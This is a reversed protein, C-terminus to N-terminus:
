SPRARRSRLPSRRRSGSRPPARSSEPAHPRRLRVDEDVDESRDAVLQVAGVATLARIRAPEALVDRICGLAEGLDRPEEVQQGLVAPLDDARRVVAVDHELPLDGAVLRLLLQPARLEPVAEHLDGGRVVVPVDDPLLVRLTLRRSRPAPTADPTRRRAFLPVISLQPPAAGMTRPAGGGPQPPGAGESGRFSAKRATGWGSPSSSVSSWTWRPPATSGAAIHPM